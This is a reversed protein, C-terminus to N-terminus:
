FMLEHFANWKANFTSTVMAFVMEARWHVVVAVGASIAVM